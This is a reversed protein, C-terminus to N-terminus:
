DTATLARAAEDIAAPGGLVLVASGDWSDDGPNTLRQVAYVVAEGIVPVEFVFDQGLGHRDLALASARSADLGTTSTSRTFVVEALHTVLGVLISELHAEDDAAVVGVFATTAHDATLQSTVHGIDDPSDVAAGLVLPERRLM